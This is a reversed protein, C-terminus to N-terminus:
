PTGERITFIVHIKNATTDLQSAPYDVGPRLFGNQQYFRRLRVVDKQLTVPDFLFSRRRLGPLFAFQNRLRAFFGPANTAIQERLRSAEFTQGEVFRFSIESVATEDNVLRLPAQGAVPVPLLGVVLLLLLM